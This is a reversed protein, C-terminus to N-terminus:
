TIFYTYVMLECVETEDYCIMPVDLNKDGDKKICPKGNSFLLSNVVHM